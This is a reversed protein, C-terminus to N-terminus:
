QLELSIVEGSDEGTERYNVAVTENKWDCSFKDAGIIVLHNSDKALLKWSKKGVEVTLVASPLSACDVRMLKGKLYNAVPGVEAPTSDVERSGQRAIRPAGVSTVEGEHQAELQAKYAEVQVLATSSMLAIQPDASNKLHELIPLADNLKQNALLVQAYNYLYTENRPSLTVAKSLSKLADAQRGQTQYALALLSYADAFNPDLAISAELEQQTRKLKDPDRDMGDQNRLMASYYLV